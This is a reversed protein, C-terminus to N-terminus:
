PRAKIHHLELYKFVDDHSFLIRKGDRLHGIKGQRALAWIRDKSCRLIASVEDAKLYPQIM